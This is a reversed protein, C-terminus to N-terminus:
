QHPPHVLQEDSVVYYTMNAGESVHTLQMFNLCLTMLVHRLPLAMYMPDYLSLEGDSVMM